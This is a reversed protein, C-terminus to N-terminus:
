NWWGNRMFGKVNKGAHKAVEIWAHGGLAKTFGGDFDHDSSGGASVGAVMSAGASPDADVGVGTLTAMGFESIFFFIHFADVELQLIIVEHVLVAGDVDVVWGWSGMGLSLSTIVPPARRKVEGPVGLGRKCPWVKPKCDWGGCRM